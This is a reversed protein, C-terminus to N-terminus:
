VGSFCDLFAIELWLKRNDVSIANAFMFSFIACIQIVSTHLGLHNYSCFFILLDMMTDDDDDLVKGMLFQPCIYLM